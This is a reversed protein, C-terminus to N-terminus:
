NSSPGRAKRFLPLSLSPGPGLYLPFSLSSGPDLDHTECLLFCLCLSLRCARSLPLSISQDWTTPGVSSFVCLSLRYARSLSLPPSLSLSLSVPGQVWTTPGAPFFVCLSVAPARFIMSRKKEVHNISKNGCLQNPFSHRPCQTWVIEFVQQDITQRRSAIRRCLTTM